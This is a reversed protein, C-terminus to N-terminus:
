QKLMLCLNGRGCDRTGRGFNKQGRGFERKGVCKLVADSRKAVSPSVAVMMSRVLSVVTAVWWWRGGHGEGVAAEVLLFVGFDVGEDHDVHFM